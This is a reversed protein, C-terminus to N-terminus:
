AVKPNGPRGDDECITGSRLLRLAPRPDFNPNGYSIRTALTAGDIFDEKEPSWTYGYSNGGDKREELLLMHTATERSMRRGRPDPLHPLLVQSLEGLAECAQVERNGARDVLGRFDELNLSV